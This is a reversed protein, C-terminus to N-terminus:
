KKLKNEITECIFAPIDLYDEMLGSFYRADEIKM